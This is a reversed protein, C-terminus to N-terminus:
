REECVVSLGFSSFLVRSFNVLSAIMMGPNKHRSTITKATALAIKEITKSYKMTLNTPQWISQQAKWFSYTTSNMKLNHSQM